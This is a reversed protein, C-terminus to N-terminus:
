PTSACPVVRSLPRTRALFRAREISSTGDLRLPSCLAGGTGCPRLLGPRLAQVRRHSRKTLVRNAEVAERFYGTLSGKKEAHENPTM